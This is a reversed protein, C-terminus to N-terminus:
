DSTGRPQVLLARRHRLSGLAASTYNGPCTALATGFARPQIGPDILVLLPGHKHLLGCVRAAAETRKWAVGFIPKDIYLRLGWPTHEEIKVPSATDQVFAMAAYAKGETLSTLLQSQVRTDSVPRLYESVGVKLLLMFTIWVGLFVRQRVTTLDIRHRLQLAIMLSLPMFLPLVYAPLRSQAVCFVVLPLFFWSLLLLPAGAERWWHLLRAKSTAFAAGRVLAPWWPLTGLALAPAYATFWGYWQPNRNQVPTFIRSYIEYHLYYHILGPDRIIVVLYWLLGTLFFLGIGAWSFMDRLGRLGDRKLVFPVIGILPLLGPPGKTLFALGFGLWMVAIYKRALQRSQGFTAAIFGFMALAEFLTLFDDTSVVNAAIFPGLSCGYILGPLWPKDPIWYRGMACLLLATLVFALAYPTRVAWTSRGLGRAAGAIIWYTLPPKSANIRESSYAPMLYDGSAVMQLANGTYRGEDTNWLSRTGQFSFGLVLLVVVLWLISRNRLQSAPSPKGGEARNM